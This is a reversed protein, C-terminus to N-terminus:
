LTRTPDLFADFFLGTAQAQVYKDVVDIAWQQASWQAPQYLGLATNLLVDGTYVVAFVTNVATQGRLGASATLGYATGWMGGLAVHTAYNLREREQTNGPRVPLLRQAFNAPAYSDQRGTLPMEVLKQFATMVVTGAIGAVIGRGVMGVTSGNGAKQM